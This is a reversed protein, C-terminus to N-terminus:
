AATAKVVGDHAAIQRAVRAGSHLAGEMYGMFAYSTISRQIMERRTLGSPKGYRRHLQSYLNPM